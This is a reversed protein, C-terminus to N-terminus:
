TRQGAADGLVGAVGGVAAAFAPGRAATVRPGRPALRGLAGAGAVVLLRVLHDDTRTVRLLLPLGVHSTGDPFTREDVQVQQLLGLVGLFLAGAGRDLGPRAAARHKRLEDAQREVDVVALLEDRHGDVLVHDAVLEALESRRAVEGAVGGVLLALASSCASLEGDRRRCRP